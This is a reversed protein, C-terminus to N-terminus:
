KRPSAASHWSSSVPSIDIWVKVACTNNESRKGVHVARMEVFSVNGNPADIVRACIIISSGIMELLMKIYVWGNGIIMEQRQNVFWRMEHTVNVIDVLEIHEAHTKWGM